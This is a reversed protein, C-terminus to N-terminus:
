VCGYEYWVTQPDNNPDPSAPKSTPQEKTTYSLNATDAKKLLPSEAQRQERPEEELDKLRLASVARVPTVMAVEGRHLAARTQAPASRVAGARSSGSGVYEREAQLPMSSSHVPPPSALSLEDRPQALSLRRPDVSVHGPDGPLPSSGALRASIPRERTVVGSRRVVVDNQSPSSAETRYSDPRNSRLLDASALSFTRSLSASGGVGGRPSSQQLPASRLGAGRNPLTQSQSPPTSTETLRVSPKVSHGPKPARGDLEPPTTKITPTVYNSSQPSQPIRIDYPAIKNEHGVAKQQDSEKQSLPADQTSRFLTQALGLDSPTAGLVCGLTQKGYESYFMFQGAM